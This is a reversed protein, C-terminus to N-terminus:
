TQLSIAATGKKEIYWSYLGQQQVERCIGGLGNGPEQVTCNYMYPGSVQM